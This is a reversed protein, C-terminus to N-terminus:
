DCEHGTRRDRRGTIVDHFGGTVLVTLPVFRWLSVITRVTTPPFFEVHEKVPEPKDKFHVVRLLGTESESVVECREIV